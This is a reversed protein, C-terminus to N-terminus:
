IIRSFQSAIIETFGPVFSLRFMGKETLKLCTLKNKRKYSGTGVFVGTFSILM